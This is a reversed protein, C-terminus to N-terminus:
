LNYKNSKIFPTLDEKNKSWHEIDTGYVLISNGIKLGKTYDSYQFFSKINEPIDEYKVIYVYKGPNKFIYGISSNVFDIFNDDEFDDNEKKAIIYDGVVPLIEKSEEYLEFKTIM